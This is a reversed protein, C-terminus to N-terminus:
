RTKSPPAHAEEERDLALFASQAVAILDDDTLPPQPENKWWRLVRDAVIRKETEPLADFSQLIESATSGM